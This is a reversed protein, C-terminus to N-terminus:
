LASGRSKIQNGCRDAIQLVDRETRQAYKLFDVQDCAFVGPMACTKEVMVANRSWAFAVMLM